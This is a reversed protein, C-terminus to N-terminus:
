LCFIIHKEMVIQGFFLSLYPLIIKNEPMKGVLNYILKQNDFIRQLIDDGASMDTPM